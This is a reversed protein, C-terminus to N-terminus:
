KSGNLRFSSTCKMDGDRKKITRQVIESKESSRKEYLIEHIKDSGKKKKRKRRERKRKKKKTHRM